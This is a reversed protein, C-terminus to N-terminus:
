ILSKITTLSSHSGICKGASQSGAVNWPWISVAKSSTQEVFTMALSTAVRRRRESPKSWSLRAAQVLSPLGCNTEGGSFNFTLQSLKRPPSPWLAQLVMVDPWSVFKPKPHIFIITRSMFGGTIITSICLCCQLQFYLSSTWRLQM